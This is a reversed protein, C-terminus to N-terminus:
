STCFEIEFVYGGPAPVADASDGSMGNGMVLRLWFAFERGGREGM